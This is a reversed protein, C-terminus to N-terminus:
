GRGVLAVGIGALAVFSVGLMILLETPPAPPLPESPPHPMTINLLVVQPQHPEHCNVCKAREAGPGAPGETALAPVGHMGEEWAEYRAQHCQACLRPYDSLPFRTEGGALPLTTMETSYHCAWCAESGTGLKDHARLTKVHCNRCDLPAGPEPELPRSRGLVASPSIAPQHPDHCDACKVRGLASSTGHAGEEWADYFPEHCQGCVEPSGASSIVTQDFLHLMKMDSQEHCVWCAQNGSGLKDHGKLVRTHCNLCDLSVESEPDAGLAPSQPLALVGALVGAIVLSGAVWAKVPWRALHKM